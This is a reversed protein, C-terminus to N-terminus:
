QDIIVDVIEFQRSVLKKVKNINKGNRGIAKGKDKNDVKVRAITGNRREQLKIEKVPIPLFCNKIFIQPNSSYEIVEVNKAILEKLRNINMGRRGIAIGAQGEAVVFIIKNDEEDLICDKITVNVIGQFITIYQMETQSLTVKTM